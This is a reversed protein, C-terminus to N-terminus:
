SAWSLMWFVMAKRAVSAASAPTTASFFVELGVAEVFFVAFRFEVEGLRAFLEGLFFSGLVQGLPELGSQAAGKGAVRPADDFVQEIVTLEDRVVGRRKGALGDVVVAGDENVGEKAGDCKLAAVEVVGVAVATAGREVEGKIEGLVAGWGM